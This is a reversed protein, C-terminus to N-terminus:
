HAYFVKQRMFIKNLGSGGVIPGTIKYVEMLGGTVTEIEQTTYGHAKYTGIDLTMTGPDINYQVSGSWVDPGYTHSAIPLSFTVTEGKALADVWSQLQGPSFEGGATKRYVTNKAPVALDLFARLFDRAKKAGQGQGPDQGAMIQNMATHMAGPGNWRSPGTFESIADKVETSFPPKATFYGGTAPSGLGPAHWSVDPKPSDMSKTTQVTPQGDPGLANGEHAAAAVRHLTKAIGFHKRQLLGVTTKALEEQRLAEHEIDAASATKNLLALNAVDIGMARGQDYAWQELHGGHGLGSKDGGTAYQKMHQIQAETLAPSGQTLNIAPKENEMFDTHEAVKQWALAKAKSVDNQALGLNGAKAYLDQSTMGNGAASEAEAMGESYAPLTTLDLGKKTEKSTTDKVMSQQFGDRAGMAAAFSSPYLAAAMEANAADIRDQVQPESLMKAAHLSQGKAIHYALLTTPDDGTEKKVPILEKYKKESSGHGTKNTLKQAEQFAKVFDEPPATKVFSEIGASVGTGVVHASIGVANDAALESKFMSHGPHLKTMKTQSGIGGLGLSEGGDDKLNASGWKYPKSVTFHQGNHLVQDGNKLNKFMVQTKTKAGKKPTAVSPVIAPSGTHAGAVGGLQKNLEGAFITTFSDGPGVKNGWALGPVSSNVKVNKGNIETIGAEDMINAIGTKGTALIAALKQADSHTFEYGFVSVNPATASGSVSAPALPAAPDAAALQKQLENKFTQGLGESDSKAAKWAQKPAAAGPASTAVIDLGNLEHVGASHAIDNVGIPSPGMANLLKQAAEHTFKFGFVSVISNPAPIAPPATGTASTPGHPNPDGPVPPTPSPAATAAALQKDLEKAFTATSPWTDFGTAAAHANNWADNSFVNTNGALNTVGANAMHSHVALGTGNHAFENSLTLADDHSFQHGFVDIVPETTSPNPSAAPPGTAGKIYAPNGNLAQEVNIAAQGSHTSGNPTKITGDSYKKFVGDGSAHPNWWTEVTTKASSTSLTVETPAKVGGKLESSKEKAAQNLGHAFGLNHAHLAEKGSGALKAAKAAKYYKNSSLAKIQAVTKGQAAHMETGHAHGAQKGNIYDQATGPEIEKPITESTVLAVSEKIPIAAALDEQLFAHEHLGLKMGYIFGTSHPLKDAEAHVSEANLGNAMMNKATQIGAAHGETHTGPAAAAAAAGVTLNEKHWHPSGELHKTISTIHHSGPNYTVEHGGDKNFGVISGDAHVNWHGPYDPLDNTWKAVVPSQEPNSPASAAHEALASEIGKAMADHSVANLHKGFSLQQAAMANHHEAEQTPIDTVGDALQAKAVAKHADFVANYDYGSKISEGIAESLTMPKKESVHSYGHNLLTQVMKDHAILASALSDYKTIKEIPTKGPLTSGYRITHSVNGSGPHYHVTSEYFKDSSGSHRELRAHKTVEGEHSSSAVITPPKPGLKTVRDEGKLTAGGLILPHGDEGELHLNFNTPTVQNVKKVLFTNTWGPIKVMDGPQLKSAKISHSEPEPTHSESPLIEPAKVETAVKKADNTHGRLKLITQRNLLVSAQKTAFSPEIGADIMAKKYKGVDFNAAETLSQKVDPKTIFEKPNAAGGYAIKKALGESFQTMYSNQADIHSAWDGESWHSSSKPTNDGKFGGTGALDLRVIKGEKDIFLNRGTEGGLNGFVDFHSMLADMGFGKRAEAQTAETVNQTTATGEHTKGLPTLGPLYKSIVKTSGDHMKILRVPATKHGAQEYALSGAVENMAVKHSPSNKVLFADGSPHEYWQGGMFGLKPVKEGNAFSDGTALKKMGALESEHKPLEVPAEPKPVVTEGLPFPKGAKFQKAVFEYAAAKGNYHAIHQEDLVDKPVFSAHMSMSKALTHLAGGAFNPHAKIDAVAENWGNDHHEQEAEASLSPIHGIPAVVPKALDANVTAHEIKPEAQAKEAAKLSFTQAAGKHMSSELPNSATAANNEHTKALISLEESSLDMHSHLHTLAANAGKVHANVLMQNTLGADHQAKATELTMAEAPTLTYPKGVKDPSKSTSVQGPQVLKYVTKPYISKVVKVGHKHEYFVIHGAKKGSAKFFPQLVAYHHGLGYHIVDGVSLAQLPKELAPKIDETSPLAIGAKPSTGSQSPEINSHKNEAPAVDAAKPAVHANLAANATAANADSAALHLGAKYGLGYPSDTPQGEAVAHVKEPPMGKLMKKGQVTGDLHGNIYTKAIGVGQELSSPQPTAPHSDNKPAHSKGNGWAISHGHFGAAVGQREAQNPNPYPMAKAFAAHAQSFHHAQHRSMGKDYADLRAAVYGREFRSARVGGAKYDHITKSEALWQSAKANRAAKATATLGKHAAAQQGKTHSQPISSTIQHPPHKAAFAAAGAKGWAQSWAIGSKTHATLPTHAWQEDIDQYPHEENWTTWDRTELDSESPTIVNSWRQTTSDREKTKEEEPDLKAPKIHESPALMTKSAEDRAAKATIGPQKMYAKAAAAKSKFQPAAISSVDTRNEKGPIPMGPYWMGKYGPSNEAKTKAAATGAAQWPAKGKAGWAQGDAHWAAQNQGLGLTNKIHNQRAGLIDTISTRTSEPIGHAKMRSDVNKLDLNAAKALSANLEGQHTAQDGYMIQGQENAPLSNYEIWNTDGNAHKTAWDGIEWANGKPSGQARFAGAGGNDIRVIRGKKDVFMNRSAARKDSPLGFADWNSTLADIGFGARAKAQLEPTMAHDVPHSHETAGLPTIDPLRKSVVAMTGNDHKLLTVKPVKVGAAHYVDNMAVENFAHDPSKAEKVLYQAGNKDKFWASPNSGKPGDVREMAALDGDSKPTLDPFAPQVFSTKAPAPGPDPLAPGMNVEPHIAKYAAVAARLTRRDRHVGHADTGAKMMEDAQAPTAWSLKQTEGNMLKPNFEKGSDEALFYHNVSGTGSGTFADKIHGILNPTLGTEEETERIATMSPVEGHDPQGKAFTAHIGAFHGKPERILVHGLHNFMVTGYRPKTGSPREGWDANPGHMSQDAYPGANKAHDKAYAAAVEAARAAAEAQDKLYEAKGQPTPPHGGVVNFPLPKGAFYQDREKSYLQDFHVTKTAKAAKAAKYAATQAPTYKPANSSKSASKFIGKAGKLIGQKPGKSSGPPNKPASQGPHKAEWAAKGAAGWAQGWAAGQPTTATSPTHAWDEGPHEADWQQWNREESEDKSPQSASRDIQTM